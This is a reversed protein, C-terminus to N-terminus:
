SKGLFEFGDGVKRDDHLLYGDKLNIVRKSRRGVEPEHTVMIITVGQKNLKDFIELIEKESHSDLNGTPEDALIIAPKNVLARAIAVRQRQGGSLENPKHHIRDGLGVSELAEKARKIREQRKVGAYIMPLMVNHLATQKALLNFSQFVFGIKVNRVRSLNKDKLKNVEVGDLTYTGSFKKDLCGLINMLSSKGSGSPGMIAVFEGKEIKFSLDKLVKLETDGNIYSKNINNLYVMNDEGQEV